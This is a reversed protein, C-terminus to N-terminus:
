TTQDASGLCKVVTNKLEQGAVVTTASSSPKKLPYPKSVITIGDIKVRKNKPPPLRKKRPQDAKALPAAQGIQMALAKHPLVKAALGTSRAAGDGETSTGGAEM